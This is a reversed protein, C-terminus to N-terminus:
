VQCAEWGLMVKKRSEGWAYRHSEGSKRVVRHCPLLYSVPNAAVASAVARCANPKGCLCALDQYSLAMGFPIRLLAKWVQFQFPTGAVVVPCPANEKTERTFIRRMQERDGVEEAQVVTSLPWSRQLCALGISVDGRDVFSMWCIEAGRWATLCEGFPSPFLGYRIAGGAEQQVASGRLRLLVEQGPSRSAEPSGPAAMWQRTQELRRSLGAVTLSHFFCDAGAGCWRQVLENLAVPSMGAQGAVIALVSIPEETQRVKRWNVGEVVRMVAQYDAGDMVVGAFCNEGDVGVDM